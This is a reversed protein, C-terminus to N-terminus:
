NHVKSTPKGKQSSGFLAKLKLTLQQIDLPTLKNKVPLSVTYNPFFKKNFCINRNLRHNSYVEYQYTEPVICFCKQSRSLFNHWASTAGWNTVFLSSKMILSILETVTFRSHDILHIDFKSLLNSMKSYDLNGRPNIPNDLSVVKTTKLIALRPIADLKAYEATTQIYARITTVGLRNQSNVRYQRPNFLVLKKVIISQGNKLIKLDLNEIKALLENLEHPHGTTGFSLLKCDEPKKYYRLYTSYSSLMGNLFHGFGCSYHSFFSLLVPAVHYKSDKKPRTIINMYSNGNRNMPHRGIIKKSDLCTIQVNNLELFPRGKRFHDGVQKYIQM